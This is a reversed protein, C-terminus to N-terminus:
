SWKSSRLGWKKRKAHNCKKMYNCFYIWGINGSGDDSRSSLLNRYAKNSERLLRGQKFVIKSCFFGWCRSENMRCQWVCLGRERTTVYGDKMLLQWGSTLETAFDVNCKHLLRGSNKSLWEKYANLLSLAPLFRNVMSDKIGVQM